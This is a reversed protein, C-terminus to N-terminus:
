RKNIKFHKREIFYAYLSYIFILMEILKDTSNFQIFRIMVAVSSTFFSIVTSIPIHIFNHLNNTNKYVWYDFPTLLQIKPTQIPVQNTKNIPAHIMGFAYLYITIATVYTILSIIVTLLAAKSQKKYIFYGFLIAAPGFIIASLNAISSIVSNLEVFSFSM